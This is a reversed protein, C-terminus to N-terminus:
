VGPLAREIYDLVLSAHTDFLILRDGVFRYEMEAPLKPLAELVQPPMTTLPITDPYPGNVRVVTGVPNEDLISARVSKGDPQSFVMTLQRRIYAQIPPKFIDGAKARPRARVIAQSVQRQNDDIMQPTAEKPVAKFPASVRDRLQVYEAVTKQFAAVEDQSAAPIAPRAGAQAFLHGGLAITVFLLSALRVM